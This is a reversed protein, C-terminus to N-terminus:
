IKRSAWIPYNKGSIDWNPYFYTEDWIIETGLQKRIVSFISQDHRNEIFSSDNPISSQSNNILNYECCGKYWKNVLNITHECKRLIYIGGVLQGTELLDNAGFYNIIDMKTWTKELHGLNFSLIGFKSNNVIEFYELLRKKGNLNISCGADAYVLIDNDNMEKMTKKILYSKWLWYGYGRKNNTIFDEESGFPVGISNIIKLYFSNADIIKNKPVAHVVSNQFILNKLESLNEFEVRSIFNM